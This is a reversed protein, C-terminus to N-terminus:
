LTLRSKDFLDWDTRSNLPMAFMAQLQYQVKSLIKVETVQANKDVCDLYKELTIKHRIPYKSKIFLQAPAPANDDITVKYYYM